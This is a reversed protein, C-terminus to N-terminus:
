LQGAVPFFGATVHGLGAAGADSFACFRARRSHPASPWLMTVSRTDEVSRVHQVPVKESCSREQLLQPEGMGWVVAVFPLKWAYWQLIHTSLLLYICGQGGM